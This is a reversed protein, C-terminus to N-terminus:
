LREHKLREAKYYICADDTNVIYFGLRTVFKQGTVNSKIVKTTAYGNADIIPHIIRTIERATMWLGSFIPDRWCHIENGKVFACGVTKGFRKIFHHEWDSLLACWGALTTPTDLNM